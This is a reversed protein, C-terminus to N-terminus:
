LEVLMKAVNSSSQDSLSDNLSSAEAATLDHLHQWSRSKIKYFCLTKLSNAFITPIPQTSCEGLDLPVKFHTFIRTLLNGSPLSPECNLNAIHYMRHLIVSVYNVSYGNM